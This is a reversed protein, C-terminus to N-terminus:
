LVDGKIEFAPRGLAMADIPFESATCEAGGGGCVWSVTGNNNRTPAMELLDGSADGLEGNAAESPFYVEGIPPKVGDIMLKFHAIMEEMKSYVDVKSPPRLFPNDVQVPGNPMDRM